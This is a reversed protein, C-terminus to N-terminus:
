KNAQNRQVYAIVLVMVTDIGHSKLLRAIMTLTAGTTCVDDLLTVSKVSKKHFNWKFQQTSKNLIRQSKRLKYSAPQFGYRSLGNSVYNQQMSLSKFITQIHSRGRLLQRFWHSRIPVIMDSELLINPIISQNIKCQILRACALNSNFKASRIIDQIINEYNYLYVGLCINPLSPLLNIKPTLQAKCCNCLSNTSRKKCFYCIM